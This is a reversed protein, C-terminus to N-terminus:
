RSNGVVPVLQARRAFRQSRISLIPFASAAPAVRPLSYPINSVLHHDRIPALSRTFSMTM